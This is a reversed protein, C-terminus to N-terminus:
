EIPDLTYATVLGFGSRMYQIMTYENVRGKYIISGSIMRPIQNSAPVKYVKIPSLLNIIDGDKRETSPIDAAQLVPEEVAPESVIEEKVEEVPAEEKVEEVVEQTTAEEVPEITETAAEVVEEPEAVTGKPVLSELYTDM